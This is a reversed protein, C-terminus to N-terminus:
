SRWLRRWGTRWRRRWSVATIMMTPRTSLWWVRWASGPPLRSVGWIIALATCPRNPGKDTQQRLSHFTALVENRQEDRYVEIDDGSSNAPFLGIVARATLREQAIIEGLMAQAEHFLRSAEKGKVPDHLIDPYVGRMEWTHFFPTWDIREAV